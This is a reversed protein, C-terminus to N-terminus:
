PRCAVVIESAIGWSTVVEAHEVSWDRESCVMALTGGEAHVRSGRSLPGDKRWM